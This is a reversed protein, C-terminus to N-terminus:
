PRPSNESDISELKRHEMEIQETLSHIVEEYWSELIARSAMSEPSNEKEPEMIENMANGERERKM